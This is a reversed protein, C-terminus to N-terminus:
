ALLINKASVYLFLTALAPKLPLMDGAEGLQLHTIIDNVLIMAQAYILAELFNFDIMDLLIVYFNGVCLASIKVDRGSLQICNM